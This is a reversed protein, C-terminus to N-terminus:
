ATSEPTELRRELGRVDTLVLAGREKRLVGARVMATLERTVQERYTGIRSALEAHHPPPALRVTNGKAGTERALRLLEACVRRQVTLTSLEVIRDSLERVLDVLRRQVREAVEPAERLLRRFVDPPIIAVVADDLALVDASRPAGDLAAVEGFFEGPGFDRFTVQRGASTYTTVRARGAVLLFVEHGRAERSIILQGGACTRWACERALAQLKEDPLGELLRVARLALTSPKEAM